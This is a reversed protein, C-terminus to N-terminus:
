WLELDHNTSDQTLVSRGAGAMSSESTDQPISRGREQYAEWTSTSPSCRQCWTTWTSRRFFIVRVRCSLAIRDSDRNGYAGLVRLLITMCRCELNLCNAPHNDVHNTHIPYCEAVERWCCFETPNLTSRESAVSLFIRIRTSVVSLSIIRWKSRCPFGGSAFPRIIGPQCVAPVM